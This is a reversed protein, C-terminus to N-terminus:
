FDQFDKSAFRLTGVFYDDLLEVTSECRSLFSNSAADFDNFFNLKFSKKDIYKTLKKVFYDLCLSFLSKPQKRPSM